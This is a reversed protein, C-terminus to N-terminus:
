SNALQRLQAIFASPGGGRYKVCGVKRGDDDVVILAPYAHVDYKFALSENQSKVHPAQEKVLPFDVVVLVLNKRAYDRFAPKDFVERRLRLCPLCWDSGTFNLLTLKKEAKARLLSGKYDTSWNSDARASALAAFLLIVVVAVRFNSIRM